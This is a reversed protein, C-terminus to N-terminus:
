PRYIIVFSHLPVSRVDPALEPRARGSRPQEALRLFRVHFQDELRDAQAISWHRATYLWILVLDDEAEEAVRYSPM